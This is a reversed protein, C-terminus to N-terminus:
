SEKRIMIAAANCSSTCYDFTEPFFDIIVVTDEPPRESSERISTPPEGNPRVDSRGEEM